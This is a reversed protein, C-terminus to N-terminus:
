VNNLHTRMLGALSIGPLQETHFFTEDSMWTVEELRMFLVAANIILVQGVVHCM